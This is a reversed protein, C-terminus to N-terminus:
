IGHSKMVKWSGHCGQNEILIYMFAHGTVMRLKYKCYSHLIFTLDNKFCITGCTLLYNLYNVFRGLVSDSLALTACIEM